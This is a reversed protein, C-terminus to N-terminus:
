PPESYLELSVAAVHDEGAARVASGNANGSIIWGETGESVDGAHCPSGAQPPGAM